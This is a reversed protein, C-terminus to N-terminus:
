IASQKTKANYNNQKRIEKDKKMSSPTPRSKWSPSQEISRPFPADYSDTSYCFLGITNNPTNNYFAVLAESRYQGFVREKPICMKRSIAYLM